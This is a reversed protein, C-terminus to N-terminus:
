IDGKKYDQPDVGPEEEVPAPEPPMAALEMQMKELQAIEAPPVVLGAEIEAQMQEDIEGFEADTQKLIYRRMYEVSFYKGVFPDMQAILAMRENMVEKEKMESFYNDAIFNYQIHEKFEDWEDLSIVGKLILQTKLIDNFLDTFKKRLRVIFKQFKVEDRTIEASRGVNFSSESELRSEPVNLARYLKKQFYKVDELEGLNQGGPLTSIETGRGGERRPLWFDELMSMFKKDDRIEGTDANYVLKNRYRSMVERLYQEAKQKPLNGVDIYFIRREPARSLRYIVLSDEIMRLQNVAKIAKHLHSLVYNRQMDMQGSHVYTVADPAIKVGNNEYGKLGKPSYIYYEISKPVISTVEPDVVRQRDKPKDFEIVKKIKRPDIYRLETIGKSPDQVDIMKHYFLRGDIYWRRFIDYAKRDFDLLVLVNEFEDRIVNKLNQSIKLNQLDIDVPHDNLDGAIAENVVDNIASDCEPHLSMERYRGILDAESAKNAADGMEVYQGFYGGAVIPSAADESEKRVFSPQTGQKPAKAKKRDLSYGFLQSM